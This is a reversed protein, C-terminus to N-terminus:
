REIGDSALSASIVDMVDAVAELLGSPVEIRVDRMERTTPNPVSVVCWDVAALMEHLDRLHSDDITFDQHVALTQVQAILDDMKVREDEVKESRQLAALDDLLEDPYLLYDWHLVIGYDEHLTETLSTIQRDNDRLSFRRRIERVTRADDLTGGARTLVASMLHRDVPRLSVKVLKM